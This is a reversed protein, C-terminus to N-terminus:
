ILFEESNASLRVTKLSDIPPLKLELLGLCSFTLENTDEMYVKIVDDQMRLLFGRPFKVMESVKEGNLDFSQKLDYEEFVLVSNKTLFM